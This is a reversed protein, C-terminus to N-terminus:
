KKDKNNVLSGDINVNWSLPQADQNTATESYFIIFWFSQTM